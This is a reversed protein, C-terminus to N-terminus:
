LQNGNAIATLRIRGREATAIVFHDLAKALLGTFYAQATRPTIETIPAALLLAARAESSLAAAEGVAELTLPGDALTLCGGRPLLDAGVALLNCGLQQWKLSLMRVKEAYECAIQRAEFFGSALQHPAPGASSSGERFGYAFRYFQLRNRARRASDSVLTLAESVFNPDNDDLLEVGNNIAAIPGSLEHCLRATLLGGICLDTPRSTVAHPADRLFGRGSAGVEIEQPTFRDVDIGQRAM